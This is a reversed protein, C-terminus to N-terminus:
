AGDSVGLAKAVFHLAENFGNTFGIIEPNRSSTKKEMAAVAEVRALTDLARSLRQCYGAALGQYHAASEKGTPEDLLDDRAKAVQEAQEAYTTKCRPCSDKDMLHLCTLPIYDEGLHASM